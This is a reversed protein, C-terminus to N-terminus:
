PEPTTAPASPTPAKPEPEVTPAPAEPGAKPAPEPEGLPDDPLELAPLSTPPESAPATPPPAVSGTGTPAGSGTGTGLLGSPDSLDGLGPLGAPMPPLAPAAPPTYAYLKKYFEAAEPRDLRQALERARDAEITGPYQEAVDRYATRAKDLDNMAELTRAAGLAAARGAPDDKPASEAVEEFRKLANQLRPLASDRNEPLDLFGQDYFRVAAQYRAWRGVPTDPYADAVEDVEGPTTARMMETWAQETATQGGSLGGIIVSLALTLVVIGGLLAWFKTGQELGRHVWRGLITMDQEPDHIVTPQEHQFQHRAPAAGPRSEDNM